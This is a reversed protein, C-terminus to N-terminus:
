SPSARRRAPESPLHAPLIPPQSPILSSICAHMCLIDIPLPTSGRARHWRQSLQFPCSPLPSPPARPHLAFIYTLCVRTSLPEGYASDSHILWDLCGLSSPRWPAAQWPNSFSCTIRREGTTHSPSDWLSAIWRSSRRVYVVAAAGSNSRRKAQAVSRRAPARAPNLVRMRVRMGAAPRSRARMGM